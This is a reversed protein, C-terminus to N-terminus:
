LVIEDARGDIRFEAGAHVAAEGEPVALPDQFHQAPGVERAVRPVGLELILPEEPLHFVQRRARVAQRTRIEGRGFDGRPERDFRHPVTLGETQM